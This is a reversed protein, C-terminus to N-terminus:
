PPQHVCVGLCTTYIPISPNLMGPFVWRTTLARSSKYIIAEVTGGVEM